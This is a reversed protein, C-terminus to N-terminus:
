SCNGGTYYHTSITDLHFSHVLVSCALSTQMLLDNCFCIWSKFLLVRHKLIELKKPANEMPCLIFATKCGYIIIKCNHFGCIGCQLKTFMFFNFLSGLVQYSACSSLVLAYSLRRPIGSWPPLVPSDHMM